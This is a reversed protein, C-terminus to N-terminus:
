INWYAYGTDKRGVERKERSPCVWRVNSPKNGPKRGKRRGGEGDIKGNETLERKRM